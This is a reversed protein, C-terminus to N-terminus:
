LVNNKNCRIANWNYKSTTSTKFTRSLSYQFLCIFFFFARSSRRCTCNYCNIASSLFPWSNLKLIMQHSNDAYNENYIRFLFLLFHHRWGGLCYYYEYCLDGKTQSPTRTAVCGTIRRCLTGANPGSGLTPIGNKYLNDARVSFPSIIIDM